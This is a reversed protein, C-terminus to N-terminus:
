VIQVSDAFHAAESWSGAFVTMCDSPSFRLVDTLQTFFTHANVVILTQQLPHISLTVAAEPMSHPAADATLIVDFPHQQQATRAHYLRVLTRIDDVTWWGQLHCHLTHSNNLWSVTVAM